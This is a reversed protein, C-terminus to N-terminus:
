DEKGTGGTAGTPGTAGTSGTEGKPGRVPGQNSWGYDNASEIWTWVYVDYPATTGVEYMEGVNPVPHANSLDTLTEYLGLITYDRGMVRGLDFQRSM